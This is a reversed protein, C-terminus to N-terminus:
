INGGNGYQGRQRERGEVLYDRETASMERRRGSLPKSRGSSWWALAFLVIGVVAVIAIVRM